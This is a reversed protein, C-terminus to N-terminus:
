LQDLIMVLHQRAAEREAANNTERITLRRTRAGIHFVAKRVGACHVVFTNSPAHDSLDGNELLARLHATLTALREPSGTVRGDLIQFNGCGRCAILAFPKMERKRKERNAL